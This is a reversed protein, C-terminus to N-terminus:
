FSYEESAKHLAALLNSRFTAYDPLLENRDSLSDDPVALRDFVERTEDILDSYESYKPVQTGGTECVAHLRLVLTIIAARIPLQLRSNFVVNQRFILKALDQVYPTHATRNLENHAEHEQM